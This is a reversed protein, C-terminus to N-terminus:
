RKWRALAEAKVEEWPVVDDPYSDDEALRRMLETRQAETLENEVVLLSPPSSAGLPVDLVPITNEM